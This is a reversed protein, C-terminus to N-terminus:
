GQLDQKLRDLLKILQPNDPSIELAQEIDEILGRLYSKWQMDTMGM